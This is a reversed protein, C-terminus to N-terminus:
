AMVKYFALEWFYLRHLWSAVTFDLCLWMPCKDLPNSLLKMKLFFFFLYDTCTGRWWGLRCCWTNICSKKISVCTFNKVSLLKSINFFFNKIRRVNVVLDLMNSQIRTIGRGFLGKLCCARRSSSGMTLSLVVERIGAVSSVLWHMCKFISM